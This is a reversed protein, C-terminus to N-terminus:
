FFSVGTGELINSLTQSHTHSPVASCKSVYEYSSSKEISIRCVKKRFLLSILFGMGPM